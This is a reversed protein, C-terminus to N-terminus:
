VIGLQKLTKEAKVQLLKNPDSLLACVQPVYRADNVAAILSLTDVKLQADKGDLLSTLCDFECPVKLGFQHLTREVLNEMFTSEVLPIVARKLPWDLLNDLYEVANTRVDQKGSRMQQYVTLIEDPPYKLGLLRFITELTKDLKKELARILRKRSAQAQRSEPQDPTKVQRNIIQARLSALTQSYLHAEDVISRAIRGDDFRLVPQTKRLHNLARVIEYRIDPDDFELSETLVDAARQTGMNAIVRPIRLRIMREEKPDRMWRVFLETVDTQYFALAERV